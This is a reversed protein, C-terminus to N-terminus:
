SASEVEGDGPIRVVARWEFGGAGREGRTEILGADFLAKTAEQITRDKLGGLGTSDVAVLDGIRRRGMWEGPQSELAALVRRHSPRLDAGGHSDLDDGELPALEYHLPSALDEPDDAWVKRRIRVITESIEDGQFELELTVTTAKTEADTHRHVVAASILVRGWASPGVGSM